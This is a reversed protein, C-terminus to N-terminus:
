GGDIKFIRKAAEEAATYPDLAKEAVNEALAELGREGGLRLSWDKVLDNFVRMFDRKAKEKKKKEWDATQVTLARHDAIAGILEPIGEGTIGITRIIPPRWAANHLNQDLEMAARLDNMAKDAGPRDAKNVVFIDAIELIGAKIAQIDDGLGPVVVVVATDTMEVIEVEDQGVGVTEIIIIDYGAADCVSAINRTSKTIGGLHGRTALSRIFVGPDEYHRQMRIRDGLIAGGSFPSTPDVAIVAVRKGDNRYNTIMKDTLSSKGAGPAGTIGIIYARGTHCYLERLLETCHPMEDDIDRVARALERIDGGVLKEAREKM